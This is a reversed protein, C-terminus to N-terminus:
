CDSIIVKIERKEAIVATKGSPTGVAELKKLVDVGDALNGFVVNKGDLHSCKALCIFFQSNNKDPGSNAMSLVGEGTHDLKFNEDEFKKGYISKGGSGEWGDLDGGQAMFGPLVRFFTCGKYGFGPEGTCLQRFNEATKPVVDGRLMMIVRGADEDGIKMDFYVRPCKAAKGILTDWKKQYLSKIYEELDAETAYKEHLAKGKESEADKGM